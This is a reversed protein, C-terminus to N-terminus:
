WRTRIDENRIRDRWTHWVDMVVDENRSNEDELCTLEQSSLGGGVCM